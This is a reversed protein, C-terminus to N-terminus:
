RLTLPCVEWAAQRVSMLGIDTQKNEMGNIHSPAGPTMENPFCPEVSSSSASVAEFVDCLQQMFM